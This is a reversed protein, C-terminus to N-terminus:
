VVVRWDTALCDGISPVWMSHSGNVQKIQLYPNCYFKEGEQMGWAEATQKNCTIGQPYGKQFVVFMGKGNWGERAIAYGEKVARLADGFTLNITPVEDFEVVDYYVKPLMIFPKTNDKAYKVDSTVTCYTSDLGKLNSTKCFEKSCQINKSPDCRYFIKKNM